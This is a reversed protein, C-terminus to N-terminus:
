KLVVKVNFEDPVANGEFLRTLQERRIFGILQDSIQRKDRKLHAWVFGALRMLGSIGYPPEKICRRVSKALM